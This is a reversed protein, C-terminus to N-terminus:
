TEREEHSVAFYSGGDTVLILRHRREWAVTIGLIGWGSISMGLLYAPIMERWGLAILLTTGAIIGGCTGPVSLTWTRLYRIIRERGDGRGRVFKGCAVQDYRRGQSALLGIFAGLGIAIGPIMFHYDLISGHRIAAAAIGVSVLVAMVLLQHHYRHWWGPGPLRPDARDPSNAIHAGPGHSPQSNRVGTAPCKWLYRRLADAPAM